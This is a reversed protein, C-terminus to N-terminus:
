RRFVAQRGSDRVIALRGGARSAARVLCGFFGFVTLPTIARWSRYFQSSAITRSSRFESTDSQERWRVAGAPKTAAILSGLIDAHNYEAAIAGGGTRELQM